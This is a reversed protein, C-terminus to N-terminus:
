RTGGLHPPQCEGQGSVVAGRFEVVGEVQQENAEGGRHRSGVPVKTSTFSRCM